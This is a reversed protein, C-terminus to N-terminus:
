VDLTFQANYCSSFPLFPLFICRSNVEDLLGRWKDTEQQGKKPLRPSTIILASSGAHLPRRELEPRPVANHEKALYKVRM